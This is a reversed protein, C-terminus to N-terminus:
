TEPTLFGLHMIQCRFGISQAGAARSSGSKGRPRLFLETGLKKFGCRFLFSLAFRYWFEDNMM